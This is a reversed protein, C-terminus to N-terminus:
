AVHSTRPEAATQRPRWGARLRAYTLASVLRVGLLLAVLPAGCLGISGAHKRYYRYASQHFAILSRYPAFRSSGAGIHTVEADPHWMTRWGAHALRRCFDADEWYLFFREDMGGAQEFAERRIIMCAGSVWDVQKPATDDASLLLNRRSFWNGPATSTLWSRRGGFATTLDPFRRGSAQLRGDRDLLRPGAVAVDPAADLYSALPKRIPGSLVCDPNLVIVYPTTCDRIGRNVAAAFGPNGSEAIFRVWAFRQAIPKLREASCAHDIVIVDSPTECQEISELCAALDAYGRCHVIVFTAANTEHSAHPEL